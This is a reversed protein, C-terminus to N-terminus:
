WMFGGYVLSTPLRPFVVNVPIKGSNKFIITSATHVPHRDYELDTMTYLWVNVPCGDIFSRARSTFSDMLPDCRENGSNPFNSISINWPCCGYTPITSLWPLAIITGNTFTFVSPKMAIKNDIFFAHDTMNTATRMADRTPHINQNKTLIM